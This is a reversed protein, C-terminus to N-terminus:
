AFCTKYCGLEKENTFVTQYKEALALKQAQDQTGAIQDTLYEALKQRVVSKPYQKVFEGAADIKAAPNPADNVAKAAKAEGESVKPPIKDQDQSRLSSAGGVAPLDLLVVLAFAALAPTM